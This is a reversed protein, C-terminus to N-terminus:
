QQDAKSEKSFPWEPGLAGPHYQSSDNSGPLSPAGTRLWVQYWDINPQLESRTSPSGGLLPRDTKYRVVHLPPNLSFIAFPAKRDRPDAGERDAANTLPRYETFAMLLPVNLRPRDSSTDHARFFRPHEIDAGNPFLRSSLAIQDQYRKASYQIAPPILLPLSSGNGKESNPQETTHVSEVFQSHLRGLQRRVFLRKTRQPASREQTGRTQISRESPLELQAASATDASQGRSHVVKSVGSAIITILLLAAALNGKWGLRISLESPLIQGTGRLPVGEARAREVFRAIMARPFRHNSYKEGSLPLAQASIQAFDSIRSQCAVCGEIHLKLERLDADKVQGVVALACMIELQKHENMGSDTGAVIQEKSGSGAIQQL